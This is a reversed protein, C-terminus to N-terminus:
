RGHSALVNRIVRSFQEINIPKPIYGSCGAKLAREHDGTMAYATTAIIPIGRTRRNEKLRRTLDLGNMGPLQIDMLILDPTVDQLIRMVEEASRAALVDHGQIRLLDIALEMNMANDEIVLVKTTPM